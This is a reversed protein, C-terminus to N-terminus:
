KVVEIGFDLDHLHGRCSTIYIALTNKGHKILKMAEPSLECSNPRLISAVRYGNLYCESRLYQHGNQIVIRAAKLTEPRDATFELRALTNYLPRPQYMCDHHSVPSSPLGEFLADPYSKHARFPATKKQWNSDDFDPLYWGKMAEGAPELNDLLPSIDGTWAHIRWEKPADAKKLDKALPLLPMWGQRENTRQVGPAPAAPVEKIAGLRARLPDAQEIGHGALREVAKLMALAAEKEVRTLGDCEAIKSVQSVTWDIQSKVAARKALLQNVQDIVAPDSSGHAGSKMWADFQDWKKEHFLKIAPKLKSSADKGFPGIDRGLIVLSKLPLSYALCRGGTVVQPPGDFGTIGTLNEPCPLYEIGGDWRRELDYYWAMENLRRHLGERGPTINTGLPGWTSSFFSGTHADETYRYALYTNEAFSREKEADGLLRFAISAVADKSASSPSNAAPPNDGYPISGLGAYRGFYHTVRAMAKPDVAVGCEKMLVMDLFCLVGIINLEGYGGPIGREVMGHCWGGNITLGGALEKAYFELRPLVLADGTALYYEALLLASYGYGWANLSEGSPDGDLRNYVCRRAAEQDEPSPSSLLFLGNCSSFVSGGYGGDPRQHDRLWRLAQDRIVTSKACDFPWTKTRGGIAKLQVTVDRESGQNGVRLQLKGDGAEAKDIAQGLATRPDNLPFAIGGAGLLYDGKRLLGEAPSGPEVTEVYIRNIYVWGAAGTPGLNTLDQNRSHQSTNTNCAHLRASPPSETVQSRCPFALTGCLCLIASPISAKM